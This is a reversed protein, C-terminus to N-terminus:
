HFFLSLCAKRRCIRLPQKSGTAQHSILSVARVSGTRGKKFKTPTNRYPIIHVFIIGSLYSKMLLFSQFTMVFLYHDLMVVRELGCLQGVGCADMKYMFM